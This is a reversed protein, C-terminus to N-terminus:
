DPERLHRLRYAVPDAKACASLEDMFCEHAFTNQLRLPSRLPGTFFPSKVTHFLVRESRINGTGGCKHGVCGMVYSPVANSGNDLERVPKSAPQPTVTRPEFGALTGTIVNGPRDYGPRGGLSTGGLSAIGHLLRERRTSHRCASRDRVSIRLKEWAMEDERSLQVRVPRGFPKRSFHPMLRFPIPATSGTVGRAACSSLACMMLRCGWCRPWVRDRRIYPSRPRGSRPGIRSACGGRRLVSWDIRAGSLSPSLDGESRNRGPDAKPGRGAFRGLAHRPVAAQPHLRLFDQQAPLGIGSSGTRGRTPAAGEAAQMQKEAVVGVFNKRVVVKVLGPVGRVSGEDVSVVTAGVAPPRVVRGHLM